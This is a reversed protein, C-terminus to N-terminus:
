ELLSHPLVHFPLIEAFSSSQRTTSKEESMGQVIM